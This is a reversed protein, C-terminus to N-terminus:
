HCYCSQLMASPTGAHHRTFSSHAPKKTDAANPSALRFLDQFRSNFRSSHRENQLTTRLSVKGNLVKATCHCVQLLQHLEAAAAAAAAAGAPFSGYSQTISLVPLPQL